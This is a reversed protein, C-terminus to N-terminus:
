NQENTILLNWLYNGCSTKPAVRWKRATTCRTKLMVGITKVLVLLKWVTIYKSLETAVVAYKRYSHTRTDLTNFWVWCLKVRLIGAMLYLNVLTNLAVLSQVYEVSSKHKM